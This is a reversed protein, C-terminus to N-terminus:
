RLYGHGIPFAWSGTFLSILAILCIIAFVVRVVWVFPPPIPIMSLIWWVIGLILCLILLSILLSLM